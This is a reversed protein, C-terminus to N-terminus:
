AYSFFSRFVNLVRDLVRVPVHEKDIVHIRHAYLVLGVATSFAPNDIHDILGGVGLPSGRRVPLDFISEAIEVM